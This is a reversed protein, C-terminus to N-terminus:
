SINVFLKEVLLAHNDTRKAQLAQYASLGFVRPKGIKRLYVEYELSSKEHQDESRKTLLTQIEERIYEIARDADEHNNCRDIGTVVFIIRSLDNTLLKTELFKRESDAFPAQAMVVMIAADVQPLVSLTIKDMNTEDNLGPTDIIDVNNQCYHLPYYVVAEKVNESNQAAEPTLKTIYNKLQGIALEKERGDKFVVKALPTIGYTVRNLTATTPLIDMPLIDIGLLANIFISKGRNFEGVVAVSFSKNAVRDLVDDILHISNELKLKASFERMRKLDSVLAMLRKQYVGFTEFSQSAQTEISVM